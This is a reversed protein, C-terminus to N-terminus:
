SVRGIRQLNKIAQKAAVKAAQSKIGYQPEDQRPVELPATKLPTVERPLEAQLGMVIDEATINHKQLENQM